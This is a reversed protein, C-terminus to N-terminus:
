NLRREIKILAVILETVSMQWPAFIRFNIDSAFNKINIKMDDNLTKNGIFNQIKATAWYLLLIFGKEDHLGYFRTLTLKCRQACTSFPNEM